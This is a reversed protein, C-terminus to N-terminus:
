GGEVRYQRAGIRRIARVPQSFECLRSAADPTLPELLPRLAGRNCSYTYPSEIVSTALLSLCWQGFGGVSPAIGSAWDLPVTRDVAPDDSKVTLDVFAGLYGGNACMAMRGTVPPYLGGWQDPHEFVLFPSIQPTLISADGWFTYREVTPEPPRKAPAAAQETPAADTPAADTPAAATGSRAAGACDFRGAVAGAVVAIAVIVRGSLRFNTIPTPLTM